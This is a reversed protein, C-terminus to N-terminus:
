GKYGWVVPRNDPNWSINWGSPRELAECYLTLSFCISFAEYGISTVSAPIIISTLSKCNFFAGDGISTVSEPIVISTLSTCNSFASVGITTIGEPINVSTLSECRYFAYDGISTVGEPIEISTLSDCCVFAGDSISTVSNPIEISTLSDCDRFAASGISTVSAPIIISELSTCCCFAFDDISTVPKGNYISPIIVDTSTGEYGTVSYETDSNILTYQLGETFYENYVAIYKANASPMTFTYSSEESIVNGLEDQWNAFIYGEKEEATITVSQNAMFRGSTFGDSLLGNEVELKYYTDNALRDLNYDFLIQAAAGYNLMATFLNEQKETLEGKERMQYVYELVSFKEVESYYTTGDVEVYARAYIDDTMEKASIGNSYFLVCDKDNVTELIFSEVQYDETGLVYETQTEEWFLMKIFDEEKDFGESSVAYIVYISDQYSLNKAEINLMVQSEIKEAKTKSVTLTACFGCIALVFTLILVSLAKSKIKM